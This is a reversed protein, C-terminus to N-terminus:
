SKNKWTMITNGKTKQGVDMNSQTRPATTTARSVPSAHVTMAGNHRITPTLRLTTWQAHKQANAVDSANTPLLM